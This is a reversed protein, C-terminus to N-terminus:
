AGGPTPEAPALEPAVLRAVQVLAAYDTSRRVAEGLKYSHDNVWAARDVDETSLLVGRPLPGKKPIRTYWDGRARSADFTGPYGVFFTARNEGVVEMEVWHERWIPGGRGYTEGPGPPHYRRRNADFVWVPDGVKM